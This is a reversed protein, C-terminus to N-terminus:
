MYVCASMCMSYVKCVYVYKCVCVCMCMGTHHNRLQIRRVDDITGSVKVGNYVEVGDSPNGLTHTLPSQSHTHVGFLPFLHAALVCVCVCVCV